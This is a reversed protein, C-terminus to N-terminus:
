RISKRQWLEMARDMERWSVSLEWNARLTALTWTSATTIYFSLYKCVYSSFPSIVFSAFWIVCSRENYPLVQAQHARATPGTWWRYVHQSKTAIIFSAIFTQREHSECRCWHSNTEYILRMSDSFQTCTPLSRPTRQVQRVCSDASAHGRLRIVSFRSLGVDNTPSKLRPAM